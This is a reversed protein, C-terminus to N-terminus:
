HSGTWLRRTPRYPLHPGSRAAAKFQECLTRVRNAFVGDMRARNTKADGPPACNAMKAASKLGSVDRNADHGRPDKGGFVGHREQSADNQWFSSVPEV